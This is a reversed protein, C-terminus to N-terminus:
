YGMGSLNVGRMLPRSGDARAEEQVKDDYIKQLTGINAQTYTMGDITFSQGGQAVTTIATQIEASTAM